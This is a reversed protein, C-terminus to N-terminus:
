NDSQPQNSKLAKIELELERIRQDRVDLAKKVDAAEYRIPIHAPCNADWAKVKFIIIQEPKARYSEPMLKKLLVPDNEVVKADGWIKIRQQNSYDMLFIHAKSNDLLNGTSIFQRNGSFDVFAL